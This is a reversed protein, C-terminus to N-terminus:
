AALRPQMVTMIMLSISRCWHHFGLDLMASSLLAVAVHRLGLKCRNCLRAGHLVSAIKHPLTSHPWLPGLRTRWIM